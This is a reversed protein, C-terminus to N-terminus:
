FRLNFHIDMAQLDTSFSVDYDNTKFERIATTQENSGIKFTSEGKWEDGQQTLKLQMSGWLGATELIGSWNESKNLLHDAFLTGASLLLITALALLSLHLRVHHLPNRVKNEQLQVADLQVTSIVRRRSKM